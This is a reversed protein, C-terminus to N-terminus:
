SPIADYPLSELKVDIYDPKPMELFRRARISKIGLLAAHAVRHMGDMVRGQPCLIIPHELDVANILQAHEIVARCTPTPGGAQFWYAEDMEKIQSLPIDVVPLSGALDVLKDVDWVLRHGNSMRSHYQKRMPAIGVSM